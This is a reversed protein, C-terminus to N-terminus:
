SQTVKQTEMQWYTHTVLVVEWSNFIICNDYTTTIASEKTFSRFNLLFVSKKKELVSFITGYIFDILKVTRTKFYCMDIILKHWISHTKSSKKVFNQM